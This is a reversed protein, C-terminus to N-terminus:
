RRAQAAGRAKAASRRKAASRKSTYRLLGGALMFLVVAGLLGGGVAVALFVWQDEDAPKVVPRASPSPTPTVSPIALAPDASDTPGVRAEKTPATTAAPAAPVIPQGPVPAAVAIPASIAGVAALTLMLAAVRRLPTSRM